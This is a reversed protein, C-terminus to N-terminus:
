VPQCHQIDFRMEIGESNEEVQWLFIKSIKATGRPFAGLVLYAVTRGIKSGLVAQFDPTGYQLTMYDTRSTDYIRKTLARTEEQMVTLVFVHRLSSLPFNHTYTAQAIQATYPGQHGRNNWLHEMIIMGPATEGIYENRERRARTYVCNKSRDLTPNIIGIETPIRAAQIKLEWGLNRLDATTLTCRPIPSPLTSSQLLRQLAAGKEQCKAHKAGM